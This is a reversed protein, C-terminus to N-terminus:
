STFGNISNNRVYAAQLQGEAWVVPKGSVVYSYTSVEHGSDIYDVLVRITDM